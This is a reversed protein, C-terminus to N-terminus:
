KWGRAKLMTRTSNLLQDTFGDVMRSRVTREEMLDSFIFGDEFIIYDKCNNEAVWTLIEFERKAYEINRTYDIVRACFNAGRVRLMDRLKSINCRYRWASSIVIDFDFENCLTNFNNLCKANFAYMGDDLFIKKFETHTTLVGDIDLFAINRNSIM